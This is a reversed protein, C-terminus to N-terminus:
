PLADGNSVVLFFRRRRAPRRSRSPSLACMALLLTGFNIVYIDREESDSLRTLPSAAAPIVVRLTAGGDREAIRVRTDAPRRVVGTPGGAAADDDAAGGGGGAAARPPRPPEASPAAGNATEFADAALRARRKADIAAKMAEIQAARAPSKFDDAHHSEVNRRPSSERRM